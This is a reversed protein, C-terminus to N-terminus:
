TNESLKKKKIIVMYNRRLDWAQLFEEKSIRIEARDFNPDNVIVTDDDYGVVLVVHYASENWYPLPVTDVFAIVPVRQYLVAAFLDNITSKHIEVDLQWRKEDKLFLLNMLNTGGAKTKLIRRLEAESVGTIGHYDLLTRAAAAVCSASLQQKYHKKKLLVIPKQKSKKV